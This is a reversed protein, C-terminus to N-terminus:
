PPLNAGTSLFKDMENQDDDSIWGRRNEQRGHSLDRSQRFRDLSWGAIHTM